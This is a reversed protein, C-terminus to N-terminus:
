WLYQATSAVNRPFTGNVPGRLGGELGPYHATRVFLESVMYSHHLFLCTLHYISSIPKSTEYFHKEGFCFGATLFFYLEIYFCGM